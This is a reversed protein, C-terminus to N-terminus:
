QHTKKGNRRRREDARTKRWESSLCGGYIPVVNAEGKKPDPIKRGEALALRRLHANKWHYVSYLPKPKNWLPRGKRDYAIQPMIGVGVNERVISSGPVMTSPSADGGYKLIQHVM